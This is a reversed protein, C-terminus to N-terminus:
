KQTMAVFIDSTQGDVINATICERYYGPMHFAFRIQGVPVDTVLVPTVIKEGTPYVLPQADICLTAGQPNSDLYVNGTPM